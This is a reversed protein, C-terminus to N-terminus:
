PTENTTKREQEEHRKVYYLTAGVPAFSLFLINLGPILFPLGFGVHFLISRLLIKLRQGFPMLNRAYVLDTNDWALFIVALLSSIPILVPSLPTFWGVVMLTMSLLVPLVARPFEQRILYLILRLTPVGEVGSVRGTVRLETIRSMRDMIFASFLIQSLLYSLVASLAVLLMSLLLSLLHWLWLVWLSAPKPWIFSMIEQHYSLIIGTLVLTVVLLLAFRLLGLFLLSGTKLGFRLGQINYRLGEAIGM